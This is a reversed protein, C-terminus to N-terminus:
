GVSCPSCGGPLQRERPPGSHYPKRTDPPMTLSSSCMGTAGAQSPYHVWLTSALGNFRYTSSPYPSLPTEYPPNRATCSASQVTRCYNKVERKIGPWYFRSRICEYTKDDGLHTVLLHTHGLYLVKGVHNWPILLQDVEQGQIECVWYLLGKSVKFYPPASVRRPARGGRANCIGLKRWTLTKLSPKDLSPDAVMQAKKLPQSSWSHRPPSAPSMLPDLSVLAPPLHLNPLNWHKRMKEVLPRCTEMVMQNRLWGPQNPNHGEDEVLPVKRDETMKKPGVTGTAGSPPM